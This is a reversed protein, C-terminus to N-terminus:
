TLMQLAARTQDDSYALDQGKKIAAEITTAYDDYSAGSNEVAQKLSLVSAEDDAAARAADSLVGIATTAVAGGLAGWAVSAAKGLKGLRGEASTFAAGTQDQATLLINLAVDSAM